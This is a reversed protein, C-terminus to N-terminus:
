GAVLWFPTGGALLAHGDRQALHGLAHHDEVGARRHLVTLQHGIPAAHQGHTGYGIVQLLGAGAGVGAHVLHGKRTLVEAGIDTM